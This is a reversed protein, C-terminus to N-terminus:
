QQRLLGEHDVRTRQVQLEQDTPPEPVPIREPIVPDFSTQAQVETLSVGPLLSSFRSM